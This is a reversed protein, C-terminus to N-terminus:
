PTSLLRNRSSTISELSQSPQPCPPRRLDLHDRQRQRAATWDKTQEPTRRLAVFHSTIKIRLTVPLPASQPRYSQVARYQGYRRDLDSEAVASGFKSIGSFLRKAGRM